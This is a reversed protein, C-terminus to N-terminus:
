INSEKIIRNIEEVMQAPYSESPNLMSARNYFQIAQDYEKNSYFADAKCIVKEYANKGYCNPDLLEKVKAIKAIVEKDAPDLGHAREYLRLSSEYDKNDFLLDAKDVVKNYENRITVVVDTSVSDSQAFDCTTISLLAIYLIFKM